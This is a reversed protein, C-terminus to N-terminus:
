TRDYHRMSIETLYFLGLCIILLLLATFDAQQQQYSGIQQYLYYPLTAFDQQGFLAIIGFDGISMMCAFAFTFRFLSKLGKFEIWYFHSLGTINLSQSLRHYRQYINAMPAELIKLAFPLAALGNSIIILIAIFWSVDSLTFFLLFLGSALVMTPIILILSGIIIMSESLWRYGGILVRSYTWLLSIALLLTVFAACFAISLSNIIAQILSSTILTMSFAAIGNFFIVVLPSLIFVAALGVIIYSILRQLTSLTGINNLHDIQLAVISQPTLRRVLFMFLLCFLTQVLSLIVAKDLEFDRLAQFIAVEFSTNQPGGGLTLVVAFSTFCLMFILSVASPIQRLLAPWELYRFNQWYSFGLQAALQRQELPIATLSQYFLRFAFPFNYFIHAILIGQIGYLSFTYDIGLWQCITALGGHRGYISPLSSVLVLSPLVFTLAVLRLLLAKGYFRLPHYAKALILALVVSFLTSLTAQFLTFGLIRWLMQSFIFNFDTQDFAFLWLSLMASCLLGLIAVAALTGPLWCSLSQSRKAM